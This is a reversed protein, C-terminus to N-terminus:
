LRVAVRRHGPRSDLTMYGNEGVLRRALAALREGM